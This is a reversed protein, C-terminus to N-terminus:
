SGCLVEYTRRVLELQEVIGVDGFHESGFGSVRHAVADHVPELAHRESQADQPLTRRRERVHEVDDHRAHACHALRVGRADNVAVNPGSVDEDTM